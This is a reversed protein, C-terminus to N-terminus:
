QIFRDDSFSPIHKLKPAPWHMWVLFAKGVIHDAPVMYMKDDQLLKNCAANAYCVSIPDDEKMYGKQYAYNTVWFRSDLSNDRNDGMMFYYGEPVVWEENFKPTKNARSPIKYIEHEVGLLDERYVDTNVTITREEISDTITNRVRITEPQQSRGILTESILQGNIYLQNNKYAIRDGPMGVLRKIYDIDPNPPYHFVVVDGRKPEGIPVIVKNIVPFRLGYAFKNVLIFDGVKLTPLMSGSPIQFPEVLFSRLVFVVLLVPFISRIFELVAPGQELRKVIVGDPEAVTKKYAEVAQKRKKVFFLRNILVVVLSVLTALTLIFTFNMYNVLFLVVFVMIALPGWSYALSVYAPPKTEGAQPNMNTHLVFKDLAMIVLSIAALAGFVVILNM